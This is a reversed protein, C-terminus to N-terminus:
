LSVEAVLETEPDYLAKLVVTVTDDAQLMPVAEAFPIVAYLINHTAADALFCGYVHQPSVADTAAFTAEPQVTAYIDAGEDRGPTTWAGLVVRAYGTFDAESLDTLVTTPHPDVAAKYLGVELGALAGLEGAGASTKVLTQLIKKAMALSNM